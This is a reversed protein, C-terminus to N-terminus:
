VCTIGSASGALSSGHFTTGPLVGHIERRLLDFGELLLAVEKKRIAEGFLLDRKQAALGVPNKPGIALLDPALFGARRAGSEGGVGVVVGKPPHRVVRTKDLRQLLQEAFADVDVLELDVGFRRELTVDPLPVLVVAGPRTVVAHRLRAGHIDRDEEVLRQRD